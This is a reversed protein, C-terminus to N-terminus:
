SHLYMLMKKNFENIKEELNALDGDNIIVDDARQNRVFRPIQQQIISKVQAETMQSRAMVRSIQMPEPCDIVLTHDVIQGYRNSEFLLPIALIQYPLTKNQQTNKELQSLTEAFIAPHLISELTEKAQADQFIKERLAARNLSGDAQQYQEGMAAFIRNLVPHGTATLQHSIVDVDVVPVGLKEFLRSAESKGSGIGGTLGVTRM